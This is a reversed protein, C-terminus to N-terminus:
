FAMCDDHWNMRADCVARFFVDKNNCCYNVAINIGTRYLLSKSGIQDHAFIKGFVVELPFAVFDYM